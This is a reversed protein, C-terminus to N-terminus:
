SSTPPTLLSRLTTILLVTAHDPNLREADVEAATMHMLAYLSTALWDRPLDTRFAGQQQGRLILQDVSAMIESHRTYVLEPGLHRLAATLVSRNRDLVRWGTRILRELTEGPDGNELDAHTLASIAERLSRDLLAELLADRSAFHGYLTVRGVGATQAITTMSADPDRGFCVLAAELINETNKRADARRHAPAHEPAEGAASPTVAGASPRNPNPM